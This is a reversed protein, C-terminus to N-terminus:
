GNRCCDGDSVARASAPRAKAAYYTSPAVQLQRCIPEVGFEARHAEIFEM